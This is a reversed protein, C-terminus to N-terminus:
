LILNLFSFNSPIRKVWKNNLPKFEYFMDAYYKFKPNVKTNFYWRKYTKSTRNDFISQPKPATGCFESLIGYKHWVYHDDNQIARYRWTNGKTYTQLSGDGLLTGFILDDQHSVISNFARNSNKTNPGKFNKFLTSVCIHTLKFKHIFYM